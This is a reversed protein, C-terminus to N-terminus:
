NLQVEEVFRTLRIGATEEIPISRLSYGEAKFAHFLAIEELALLRHASVMELWVSVSEEFCGARMLGGVFFCSGFTELLQEM